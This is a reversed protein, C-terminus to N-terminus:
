KCQVTRMFNEYEEVKSYLEDKILQAPTNKYPDYEVFGIPPGTREKHCIWSTVVQVDRKTRDFAVQFKDLWARAKRDICESSVTGIFDDAFLHEKVRGMIV